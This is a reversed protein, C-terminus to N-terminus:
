KTGNLKAWLETIAQQLVLEDPQPMSDLGPPVEIQSALREQFEFFAASRQIERAADSETVTSPSDISWGTPGERADVYLGRQRKREDEGDAAHKMREELRRIVEPDLLLSDVVDVLHDGAVDVLAEVSDVPFESLDIPVPSWDVM